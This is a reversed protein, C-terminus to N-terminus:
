IVEAYFGHINRSFRSNLRQLYDDASDSYNMDSNRHENNVVKYYAGTEAKTYYTDKRSTVDSM